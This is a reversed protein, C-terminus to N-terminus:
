FHTLTRRIKNMLILGLTETSIALGFVAYYGWRAALWGGIASGSVCAVAFVAHFIGMGEGEGCPFLQATLATGNVILFPWCLVFASFTLLVLQVKCGICSLELLYFVIFIFLRVGIFNRLILAQGFTHGWPGAHPYLFVSLGMAMAFVLSLLGQGVGYGEQMMVPYLTFVASTSTLCLFWVVMFYEFPTKIGLKV